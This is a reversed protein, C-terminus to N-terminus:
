PLKLRLVVNNVLDTIMDDVQPREVKMTSPHAYTNRRGLKEKLSRKMNGTIGPLGGVLDVAEDETLEEFDERKVIQVHAKKPNRKAIGANFAALRTADALVWRAVHDYTLNWAMVIAARFAGHRYCTITENYFVREGEDALQDHLDTLVKEVVLVVDAKGLTQDLKERVHQALRYGQADKLLEAPKKETLSDLFRNANAPPDLHAADYCGRIEAATFRDRGRHTHLFWGFAKIKEPHNKSSFAPIQRVFENADV